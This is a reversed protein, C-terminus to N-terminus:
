NTHCSRIAMQHRWNPDPWPVVEDFGQDLTGAGALAASFADLDSTGGQWALFHFDLL